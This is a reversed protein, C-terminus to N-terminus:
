IEEFAPVMNLTFPHSYGVELFIGPVQPTVQKESYKSVLVKAKFIKQKLRFFFASSYSDVLRMEDLCFSATVASVCCCLLDTDLVHM